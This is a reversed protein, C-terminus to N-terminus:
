GVLTHTEPYKIRTPKPTAIFYALTLPGLRGMYMMFMIVIQGLETLQPTFNRSLGVTASASIVEFLIDVIHGEPEIITLIFGAMGIMLISISMVAFSKKVLQEPIARNFLTVQQRQRLYAWTTAMIIVFTGIKIGGGTSMSGAGIFMLIFTLLTSADTVQSYDINNFGATRSTVAMFWSAFWQEVGNFTGLTHPNHRELLWYGVCGLVNLLVTGMIMVKTHTTFKQWRKHKIIDLIVLFGFGGTIILLSIIFSVMPTHVYETMNNGTLAFGANNFASICLFFAEYMASKLGKLPLLCLTLAIFGLFETIFAIKIVSKATSTIESGSTGLAEQATMSGSLGMKGQLSTLVLIAFTMFGLGGFQILAIIVMQGFTTYNATDVVNLGTVTVASTATFGAQLVSIPKFSAIPLSLLVTGIAILMLFGLSLIAPSSLQLGQKLSSPEDQKSSPKTPKSSTGMTSATLKSKDIIKPKDAKKVERFPM